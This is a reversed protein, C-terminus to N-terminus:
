TLYGRIQLYYDNFYNLELERKNNFVMQQTAQEILKLGKVEEEKVRPIIHFHIHRVTESITVVYVREINQEKKLAQELKKILPGVKALEEGTFDSWNEIHRKPELYLYGLVQSELPGPTIIWDNDEYIFDKLQRHKECIKCENM